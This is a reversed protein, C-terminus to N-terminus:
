TTKQVLILGQELSAKGGNRHCLIILNLNAEILKQKPKMSESLPVKSTM